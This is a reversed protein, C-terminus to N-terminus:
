TPVLAVPLSSLGTLSTSYIREAPGRLEVTSVLERLTELLTTVEIRALYAGLCFHPGYGFAVHNNPSRALDFTYPLEFVSEDRNASVSWVTVIEGAAVAQGGVVTDHTATRGFHQTPSTWRLVEEVATRVTVEGDRLARWQGPHTAFAEVAGIMSLRSTEDGGLILNYCNLIIEDESLPLGDIEGGALMAVVDAHPTDKRHRALDAFYLLLQNKAMWGDMATHDASESSITQKTLALIDMRDEEPVALLDCITALPIHAAVEKAFDTEGREVAEGVLRRTVAKLRETVVHLARPAFAKLLLKRLKVHRPGDTVVLMRGGASDAQQLLTDLVNGRESTFNTTDRCVANFDAHKTVVWFGPGRASEPQWHVPDHQRLHRWVETLDHEVFTSPDALDIRDIDEPAVLTRTTM